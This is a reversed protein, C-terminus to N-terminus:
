MGTKVVACLLRAGSNGTPDTKGDDANAHVILASGDADLLDQLSAMIMFRATGKGNAGVNIAPLDGRHSGMPNELGHQKGDPNWHGGAASFGEGSCQGISHIHMGHPGPTLGSVRVIGHVMGGHQKLTISGRKAGAADVFPGSIVVSKAHATATLALAILCFAPLVARM